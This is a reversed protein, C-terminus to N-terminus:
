YGCEQREFFGTIKRLVGCHNMAISLSMASSPLALGPSVSRARASCAIETVCHTGGDPWFRMLPMIALRGSQTIERWRAQPTGIATNTRSFPSPEASIRCSSATLWRM